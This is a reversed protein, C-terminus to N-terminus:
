KRCLVCIDDVHQELYDTLRLLCDWTLQEVSGEAGMLVMRLIATDEKLECLTEQICEKRDFYDM